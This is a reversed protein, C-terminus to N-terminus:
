LKELIHWFPKFDEYTSLKTSILIGYLILATPVIQYAVTLVEYM